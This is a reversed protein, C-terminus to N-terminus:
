ETINITLGAVTANGSPDNVMVRVTIRDGVVYDQDTFPIEAVMVKHTASSEIQELYGPQDIVMSEGDNVSLLYRIDRINAEDNILITFVAETGFILDITNDSIETGDLNAFVVTPAIEDVVEKECSLVFSAFLALPIFLLRIM